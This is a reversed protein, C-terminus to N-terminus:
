VTIHHEIIKHTHCEQSLEKLAPMDRTKIMKPHISIINDNQLQTFIRSVTESSLGLYHAIEQRSMPLHIETASHGLHSYRKSLSILFTAIREDAKKNCATLLMKEEFSIIKSMTKLMMKQLNPIEQCLTAFKDIPLACYTTTELSIASSRYCQQNLSDLGIIEGPLYFALIQQDGACSTIFEKVAGSRLISLSKVPDGELHLSDGKHLIRSRSIINEFESLKSLEIHRPVCSTQLACLSCSFVGRYDNSRNM